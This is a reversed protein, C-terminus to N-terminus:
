RRAVVTSGTSGSHLWLSGTLALWHSRALALTLSLSHSRVQLTHGAHELASIRRDLTHELSSIRYSLRHDVESSEADGEGAAGPTRDCQRKLFLSV